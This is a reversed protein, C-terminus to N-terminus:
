MAMHQRVSGRSVFHSIVVVEIGRSTSRNSYRHAGVELDSEWGIEDGIEADAPEPLEVTTFGYLQTEIAVICKARNVAYVRGNM